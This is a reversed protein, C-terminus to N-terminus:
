TDELTIAGTPCLDAAEQVKARLSEPPEDQLIYLFMDPRIEFVQPCVNTCGGTTACVDYDVKVKYGM